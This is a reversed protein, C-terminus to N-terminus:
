VHSLREALVVAQTFSEHRAIGKGAIPFGTGHDPSTRVFPLGLTINVARDFELTKLAALGQDHYAAVVADFIGDRAQAFATDGPVPGSLLPINEALRAVWRRLYRTEESGLIGGEGAHPNIGCVAIRPDTHGLSTALGHARHVARALASYTLAYPVRVLPVHWTALAVILSGGAFAMTPEGGWRAAFFETQGPFPFGIGALGAKAVPGTVVARFAGSLCGAAAEEMAELACRASDANPKGSSVARCDSHTPLLAISDSKFRGRLTNLWHAPGIVAYTATSEVPDATINGLWSEIIEPGIGAPDGSTIAITKSM